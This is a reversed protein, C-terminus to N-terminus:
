SQVTLATCSYPDHTVRFCHDMGKDSSQRQVNTLAGQRTELQHLQQLKVPVRFLWCMVGRKDESSQTWKLTKLNHLENGSCMPGAEESAM